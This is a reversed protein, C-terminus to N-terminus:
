KKLRRGKAILYAEVEKAQEINSGSGFYYNNFAEMSPKKLNVNKPKNDVNLETRPNFVSEVEQFSKSVKETNDEYSLKEIPKSSVTQVNSNYNSSHREYYSPKPVFRRRRYSNRVVPKRYDFIKLDHAFINKQVTHGNRCTSTTKSDNINFQVASGCQHCLATYYLKDGENPYAQKMLGVLKDGNILEIKSKLSYEESTSAFSATTVFFGMEADEEIIAAFFKQLQPRGIKQSREYRKCEILYKKGNKFAIGDKGHDNSFPTQTVKYGLNRYMEMVVTEFDLPNLSYLYDLDKSQVKKLRDIENRKLSEAKAVIERVRQNEDHIIKQEKLEKACTLCKGKKIGNPVGHKCQEDYGLAEYVTM